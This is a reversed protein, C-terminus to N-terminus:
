KLSTSPLLLDELFFASLEARGGISAKSYITVAQQRTTRESVKRLNSIERMSFGKLLMLAVDKEAATLRWANFQADIYIALGELHIKRQRWLHALDLAQADNNRSLKRNDSKTKLPQLVYIYSLLLSVMAVVVVDKLLEVAPEGEQIDEWIDFAIALLLLLLALISFQKERSYMQQVKM